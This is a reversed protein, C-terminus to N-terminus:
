NVGYIKVSGLLVGNGDFTLSIIGSNTAIVGAQLFPLSQGASYPFDNGYFLFPKYMNTDSYNIIQLVATAGVDGSAMGNTNDTINSSNTVVSSPYANGSFGKGSTGNPWIQIQRGTATGSYFKPLVVMLNTYSQSIGSITTSNGSLTTTSLLTMSGASANVLQSETYAKTTTM